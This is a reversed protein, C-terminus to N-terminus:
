SIFLSAPAMLRSQRAHALFTQWTSSIDGLIYMYLVQLIPCFSATDRGKNVHEGKAHGDRSSYRLPQFDQLFKHVVRYIM